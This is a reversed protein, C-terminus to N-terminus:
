EIACSLSTSSPSHLSKTPLFVGSPLIWSLLCGHPASLEALPSRRCDLSPSLPMKSAASSRGTPSSSSATPGNSGVYSPLLRYDLTAKSCTLFRVASRRWRPKAVAPYVYLTVAFCLIQHVHGAPEFLRGTPCHLFFPFLRKASNQGLLKKALLLDHHARM